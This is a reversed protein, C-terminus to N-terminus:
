EIAETSPSAVARTPAPTAAIRPLPDRRPVAPRPLRVYLNRRLMASATVVASVFAGMVSCITIDQGTLFLGSVPSQPRLAPDAFRAPTHALGYIEGSAHGAFHRTSLPTSLEEAEIRGITAPVWQQLSGRLREALRAKLDDYEAGRRKWRTDTWAAFRQYSALTSIQITQVGPYRHKFSPDKAAPFSV